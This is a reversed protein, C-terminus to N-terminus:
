QDSIIHFINQFEANTTTGVSFVENDGRSFERLFHRALEDQNERVVGM